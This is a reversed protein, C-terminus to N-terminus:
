PRQGAVLVATNTFRPRGDAAVNQRVATEFAEWFAARERALALM